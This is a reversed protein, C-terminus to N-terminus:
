SYIVPVKEVGMMKYLLYNIYGDKLSNNQHLRIPKKFYGNENYFKQKKQVKQPNPKSMDKKIKIKNIDISFVKKSYSIIKIVGKKEYIKTQGRM